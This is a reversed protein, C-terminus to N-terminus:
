FVCSGSDSVKKYIYISTCLLIEDVASSTDLLHSLLSLGVCTRVMSGCMHGNLYVRYGDIPNDNTNLSQWVISMSDPKSTTELSILPGGNPSVVKDCMM